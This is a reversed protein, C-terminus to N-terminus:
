HDNALWAMSEAFEIEGRRAEHEIVGARTAEYRAQARIGRTIHHAFLSKM